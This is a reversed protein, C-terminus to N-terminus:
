NTEVRKDNINVEIIKMKQRDINLVQFKYVGARNIQRNFSDPSRALFEHGEISLAEPDFYIRMRSHGSDKMVDETYRITETNQALTASILFNPYQKPAGSPSVSKTEIVNKSRDFSVHTQYSYNSTLNHADVSVIAYIASGSKDFDYDVHSKKANEVIFNLNPDIVEIMPMKVVADNFDYQAILTFPEDISSRKFIQFKKIDRQPTHPFKWTILLNNKEYDFFYNILDPPPPAVNDVCKVIIQKSPRSCVFFKVLYTSDENVRDRRLKTEFVDADVVMEILNLTRAEYSYTKGYAVKADIFNTNTHGSLFLKEVFVRRGQADIEYKDIVYGCTGYRPSIDQNKQAPTKKILERNVFVIDPVYDDPSIASNSNMRFKEQFVIVDTETAGSLVSPAFINNSMLKYADGILRSNINVDFKVSAANAYIENKIERNQRDYFTVGDSSLDSVLKHAINGDVRGSTADNIAKALDTQSMQATNINTDPFLKQIERMVITQLRNSITADEFTFKSWGRTMINDETQGLSLNDFNSIKLQEELFSSAWTSDAGTVKRLSIDVYRPLSSLIRTLSADKRRSSEPFSKKIADIQLSEKESIAEDVVFFNYVFEATFSTVDPVALSILERSMYTTTM